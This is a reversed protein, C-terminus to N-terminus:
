TKPNAKLQELMTAADSVAFEGLAEVNLTVIRGDHVLASYRASRVGFGRATLDLTLGAAQALANNGDGLMRIKGQVGQAQGWAGMVFPDNCAVCWIEDAGAAKLAEYQELYGPLHRESCLPTFAGPVAFLVITKGAAAQATDVADPGLACEGGEAPVYEYLTVAPLQDGVQLM